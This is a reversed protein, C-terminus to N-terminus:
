KINLAKQAYITENDITSVNRPNSGNSFFIKITRELLSWKDEEINKQIKKGYKQLACEFNEQIDDLKAERDASYFSLRRLKQVGHFLCLNYTSFTSSFNTLTTNEIPM